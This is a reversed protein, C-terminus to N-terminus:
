ASKKQKGKTRLVVVPGNAYCSCTWPYIRFQHGGCMSDIMKEQGLQICVRVIRDAANNSASARNHYRIYWTIADAYAAVSREITMSTNWTHPNGREPDLLRPSINQQYDTADVIGMCAFSKIARGTSRITVIGFRGDSVGAQGGPTGSGEFLMILRNAADNEGAAERADDEDVSSEETDHTPVIRPSIEPVCQIRESEGLADRLRRVLLNKIELRRRTRPFYSLSKTRELGAVTTITNM